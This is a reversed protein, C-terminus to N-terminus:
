PKRLAAVRTRVEAASAARRVSADPSAALRACTDLVLAPDRRGFARALSDISSRQLGEVGPTTSLRVLAHKADDTAQHRLALAARIRVANAESADEALAILTPAAGPGLARVDPADADFHRTGLVTRVSAETLAAAAPSGAVPASEACATLLVLLLAARRM